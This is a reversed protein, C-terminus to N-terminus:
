DGSAHNEVLVAAAVQQRSQQGLANLISTVTQYSAFIGLGVAAVVTLFLLLSQGLVSLNLKGRIGRSDGSEHSVGLREIYKRKVSAATQL